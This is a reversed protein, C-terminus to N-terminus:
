CREVREGCMPHAYPGSDFQSGMELFLFPNKQRMVLERRRERARSPLPTPHPHIHGPPSQRLNIGM